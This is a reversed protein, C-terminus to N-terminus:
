RDCRGLWQDDDREGADLHMGQPSRGGVRTIVRPYRMKAAPEGTALVIIQHYWDDWLNFWYSFSLGVELELADICTHAADGVLHGADFPDPLGSPSGPGYRIGGCDLPGDNFLFQDVYDDWRGFAALIAGHLHKLTQDGRIEITTAPSLRARGVEESLPEELISVALTYLTEAM